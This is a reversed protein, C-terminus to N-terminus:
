TNNSIVLNLNITEMCSTCPYVLHSVYVQCLACSNFLHADIHGRECNNNSILSIEQSQVFVLKQNKKLHIIVTTHVVIYRVEKKITAVIVHICQLLTYTNNCFNLVSVFSNVSYSCLLIYIMSTLCNVIKEQYNFIMINIFYM